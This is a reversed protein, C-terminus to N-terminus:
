SMLSVNTISALADRWFQFKMRGFTPNTVTEQVSALEIQALASHFLSTLLRPSSLRSARDLELEPVLPSIGAGTCARQAGEFGLLQGQRPGRPLLALRSLTRPGTGPRARSLVLDPRGRRRGPRVVISPAASRRSIPFPTHCLSQHRRPIRLLPPTHLLHGHHPDDIFTLSHSLTSLLPLLCPSTLARTTRLCPRGSSAFWGLARSERWASSSYTEEVKIWRRRGQRKGNIGARVARGWVHGEGDGGGRWGSLLGDAVPRRLGHRGEERDGGNPIVDHAVYREARSLGLRREDRM